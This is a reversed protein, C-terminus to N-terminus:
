RKEFPCPIGTHEHVTSGKMASNGQNSSYLQDDVEEWEREWQAAESRLFPSEAAMGVGFGLHLRM